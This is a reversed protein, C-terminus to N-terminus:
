SHKGNNKLHMNFEKLPPNFRICSLIPMYLSRRLVHRGGQISRYGRRKGSDQAIPALGALAAIQRRNLTGLEPLWAEIAAITFLSVGPISLLLLKREAYHKDLYAQILGEIEKLKKKLFSTHDKVLDAMSKNAECRASLRILEEKLNARYAMLDRLHQQQAERYHTKPPNMTRGYAALMKADLRDTKATWNRSRAFYKARQPNIICVGFGRAELLQHALCQYTGTSEAIIIFESYKFQQGLKEIFEEIGLSSNSVTFAQCTEEIYFDLKEKSVDLGIYYM